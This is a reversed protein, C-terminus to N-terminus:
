NSDRYDRPSVGTRKRFATAFHTANSFGVMAAVEGITLSTTLLLTKARTIRHELVFQYPTTGFTTRFAQMFTRVPMDALEALADLTIEADISDNLYAMINARTAADLSARRRSEPQRPAACTDLIVLRLTEALSDTLLRAVVDRRGAVGNIQEVLHHILLDQYKVRPILAADDIAQGPIAIECYGAVNGQVLAACPIGAPKWWVDGARPPTQGSPGWDLLTKMSRMAGHRYVYMLHNHRDFSCWDTPANIRETAFTFSLGRASVAKRELVIRPTQARDGDWPKTPM